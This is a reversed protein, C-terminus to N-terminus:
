GSLAFTGRALLQVPAAGAQVRHVGTAMLYLHNALLAQGEELIAGTTADVLASSASTWQAQGERVVVECGAQGVLAQGPRLTITQFATGSVSVQGGDLRQEWDQMAQTLEQRLADERAAVANSVADEIQPQFRETLYSLTILPDNQSGATAAYAVTVLVAAGAVAAAIKAKSKM